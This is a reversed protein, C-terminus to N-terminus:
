WISARVDMPKLTSRHSVARRLVWTGYMTSTEETQGNRRNMLPM